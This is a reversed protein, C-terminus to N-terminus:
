ADFKTHSLSTVPKKPSFPSITFALALSPTRHELSLSGSLFVRQSVYDSHLPLSIPTFEIFATQLTESFEFRAGRTRLYITCFSKESRVKELLFTFFNVNNTNHFAQFIV